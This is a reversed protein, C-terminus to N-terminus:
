GHGTHGEPTDAQDAPPSPPNVLSDMPQNSSSSGSPLRQDDGGAGTPKPTRGNAVGNSSGPQPPPLLGNSKDILDKQKQKLDGLRDKTKGWRNIFHIVARMLDGLYGGGQFTHRGTKYRGYGNVLENGVDEIDGVIATVIELIEYIEKRNPLDRNALATLRQRLLATEDKAKNALRRHQARSRISSAYSSRLERYTSNLSNRDLTEPNSPFDSTPPLFVM